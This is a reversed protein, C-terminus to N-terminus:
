PRAKQRELESLGRLETGCAIREREIRTSSKFGIRCPRKEERIKEREAHMGRAEGDRQETHLRRLALNVAFQRQCRHLTAAPEIQHQAHAIPPDLEIAVPIQSGDRGSCWFSTEGNVLSSRSPAIRQCGAFSSLPWGFQSNPVLCIAVTAKHCRASRSPSIANRLPAESTFAFCVALANSWAM